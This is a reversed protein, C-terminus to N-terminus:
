EVGERALAPQPSGTEGLLIRRLTRLDKVLRRSAAMHDDLLQLKYTVIQLAQLRRDAGDRQATITENEISDLAEKLADQLLRIYEYTSELSDFPNSLDEQM